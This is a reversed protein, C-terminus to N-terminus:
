PRAPAASPAARFPRRATRMIQPACTCTARPGRRVWGSSSGGPRSPARRSAAGSTGSPVAPVGPAPDLMCRSERERLLGAVSARGCRAEPDASTASPRGFMTSSRGRTPLQDSTRRGRRAPRIWQHRINTAQERFHSPRTPALWRSMTPLKSSQVTDSNHDPRQAREEGRARGARSGPVYSPWRPRPQLRGTDTPASSVSSTSRRSTTSASTWGGIFGM